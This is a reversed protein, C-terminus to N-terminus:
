RERGGEVEGNRREDEKGGVRGVRGSRVEWGGGGVRGAGGM